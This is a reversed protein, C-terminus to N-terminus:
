WVSSRLTSDHLLSLCTLALCLHPALIPSSGV